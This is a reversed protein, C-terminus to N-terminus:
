LNIIQDITRAIGPKWFRNHACILIKQIKGENEMRAYQEIIDLKNKPAKNGYVKLFTDAQRITGHLIRKRDSSILGSCIVAAYNKAGVSNDTHQRYLSTVKDIYVISGFVSAVIAVWADHIVIGTADTKTKLIEVLPANMMSACGPVCNIALLNNVRTKHPNLHSFKMFSNAIIDLSADVTSMDSFYLRPELSNGDLEAVRLFLSIKNPLWVDDQDCFMTYQSKSYKILHMFNAQASGYHIGESVVEIRSDRAAMERVINLTGDTSCDDSVLIRWDSFDQKQISEIQERIFREGNYTALLVDVTAM